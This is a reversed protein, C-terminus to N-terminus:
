YVLIPTDICNPETLWPNFLVLGPSRISIRNGTGDPNESSQKPGSADGWWNEAADVISDGLHYLGTGNAAICNINLTLSGAYFNIGIGDNQFFTNDTAIIVAEGNMSLGTGNNKIVNGTLTAQTSANLSLAKAFGSFLNDSITIILPADPKSTEAVIGNAAYRNYKDSYQGTFDNGQITVDASGGIYVTSGSEPSLFENDDILVTPKGYSDSIDINSNQFTNRVLHTSTGGDIEIELDVFTNGRAIINTESSIDIKSNTILNNSLLNNGAGRFWIGNVEPTLTSNVIQITGFGLNLGSQGSRIAMFTSGAPQDILSDNITLTVGEQVQISKKLLLNEGSIELNQRLTGGVEGATATSSVCNESIGATSESICCATYEYTNGLSVATDRYYVERHSPDTGGASNIVQIGDRKIIVSLKTNGTGGWDCTAFYDIQTNGIFSVRSSQANLTLPM